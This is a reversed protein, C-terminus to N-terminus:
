FLTLRLQIHTQTHETRHVNTHRWMVIYQAIVLYEIVYWIKELM